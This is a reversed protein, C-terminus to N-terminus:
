FQAALIQGELMPAIRDISSAARCNPALKLLPMQRAIATSIMPEQHIIGLLELEQDLFNKTARALSTHVSRGALEDACWNVLLSTNKINKRTLKLFAYADTIATPEPTALLMVRDACRAWMRPWLGAGSPADILVVDYNLALQRFRHCFPGFQTKIQLYRPDSAGFIVDCGITTNSSVIEEMSAKGRLVQGLHKKPIVGLQIDINALGVDGDVLLVRKNRLALAHALTVAMTTKGVGGKGSVLSWIASM